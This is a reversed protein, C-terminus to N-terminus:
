AASEAVDLIGKAARVKELAERISGALREERRSSILLFRLAEEVVELDQASFHIAVEDGTRDREM